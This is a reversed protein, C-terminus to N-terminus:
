LRDRFDAAPTNQCAVAKFVVNTGPSLDPQLFDYPDTSLVREIYGERLGTRKIVALVGNVYAEVTEPYKKEEDERRFILELQVPTYLIM